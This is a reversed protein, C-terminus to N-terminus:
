SFKTKLTDYLPVSVEVPFNDVTIGDVSGSIYGSVRINLNKFDLLSVVLQALQGKSLVDEPKFYVDVSLASTTSPAIVQTKSSVVPAIPMKNVYATLHYNKVTFAFDSENNIALFIRIGQYGQANKGLMQKGIFQPKIKKLKQYNLYLTTGAYAGFSVVVIIGGIVLIKEGKTM